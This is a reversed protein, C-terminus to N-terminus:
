PRTEEDIVRKAEAGLQTLSLGERAMLWGGAILTPVFGVAHLVIAAGVAHDNDVGFFATAAVRYAEHFGGVAGPTPVAVGVVLLAMILLAGSPPLRVGVAGSVVWTQAAIVAWLVFSWILAAALRGPDRVVALGTAFQRALGLIAAGPRAPLRSTVTGVSHLLWDPRAAAGLMILIGAAALYGARTGWTKVTQFMAPDMATVAPDVFTLFAALLVLVTILDLLREIVITTIVAATDLGERRALLWPRLFEGARAPLVFSAAFGIVTARYAVGFHTAGLPALMVQWRVARLAYTTFLCAVGVAVLGPNATRVVQWVSALNASRLFVGVLVLTLAVLITNRLWPRMSNAGDRGRRGGARDPVDM